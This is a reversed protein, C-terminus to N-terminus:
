HHQWGVEFIYDMHELRITALTQTCPQQFWAEDGFVKPLAQKYSIGFNGNM